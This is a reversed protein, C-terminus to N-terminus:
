EEITITIAKIAKECISVAEESTEAQAIVFGVRDTSSDISGVKDGVNKVFSIEKIGEIKEATEAGEISKITGAPVNFYRIASGKDFKKTIDAPEGCAIQLTAKVMDIGTSLPVLHTTICDGGMRAGLEIMKPGTKTVMIEVHAPGDQIGVAKAARSALDRIAAQTDAPLRSPQSHGMEVFHPAGTTLKDTIQLVTPEGSVVMVEVSVENGELYEEIIVGGGRSSSKSYGYEAKLEEENHALVVGRSGSNDTPKMICPYSISSINKEFEAEDGIIFFWPHEVNNEEFARIMEGKDTSKVATDFSIGHLGLKECAAAISRMPMDTALTMIGDPKFSAAVEAVGEIDITSVNFFEDAFKIGVAEPNYDVVGVYAGMEKAKKIAPLQLISAGIILVKKM